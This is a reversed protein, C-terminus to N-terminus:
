RRPRRPTQNSSSGLAFAEPYARRVREEVGGPDTGTTTAEILAVWDRLRARERATPEDPM